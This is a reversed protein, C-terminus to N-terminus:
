NGNGKWPFAFGGEGMGYGITGDSLTYEMMQDVMMFTDFPTTWVFLPKGTFDWLRGTEDWVKWRVSKFSVEDDNYVIEEQVKDIRLWKEGDHLIKQYSSGEDTIAHVAVCAMGNDFIPWALRYHQVGAWNRPGASVDRFGKDDIQIVEGTRLTIKGKVRCFGEPHIYCLERAISNTESDGEMAISDAMPHLLDWELDALFDSTEVKVQSTQLSKIAQMTIGAVKMGPDMREKTYPLNLNVRTFLPKGERFFVAMCNTEGANEMIGIRIFAGTKTARDYFNFFFSQCWKPIDPNPIYRECNEQLYETTLTTM